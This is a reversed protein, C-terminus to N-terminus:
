VELTEFSGEEGGSSDATVDTEKNDTAEAETEQSSQESAKEVSSSDVSKTSDDTSKNREYPDQRPMQPLPIDWDNDDLIDMDASSNVDLGSDIMGTNLENENSDIDIHLNKESM